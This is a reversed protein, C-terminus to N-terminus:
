GGPTTSASCTLVAVRNPDNTAELEDEGYPSRIHHEEVLRPGDASTAPEDDGVYSVGNQKMTKPDTTLSGTVPDHRSYAM